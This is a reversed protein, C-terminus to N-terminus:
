TVTFGITGGGAPVTISGSHSHVISAKNGLASNISSIAADYSSFKSGLTETPTSLHFWDPVRGHSLKVLDGNANFNIDNSASIGFGSGNFYMFAAAGLFGFEILPTTYGSGLNQSRVQVYETASTYAGFLDAQPDMKVYPYNGDSSIAAGTLYAKGSKTVHFPATDPILGGSWFRVDDGATEITSMGVMGDKSVLMDDKVIWDGVELMNKSQLRGQLVFNVMKELQAVKDILDTLSEDGTLSSLNGM